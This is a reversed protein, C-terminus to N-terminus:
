RSPAEQLIEREGRCASTSALPPAGHQPRDTAYERM